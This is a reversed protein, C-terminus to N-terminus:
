DGLALAAFGRLIDAPHPADVASVQAALEDYEEDSFYGHKRYVGMRRAFATGTLEPHFQTAYINDGIRYAQACDKSAALLVAGEPLREVSEHHAGLGIFEAPLADFVPDSAADATVAITPTLAKEVHADSVEGGLHAAVVGIGYCSFFAYSNTELAHDAIFQINRETLLQEATKEVDTFNFPSGGVMVGRYTSLQEATVPGDLLSVYDLQEPSADLSELFSDYEGDAADREPRAAFFVLDAM